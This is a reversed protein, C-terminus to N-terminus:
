GFFYKRFSPSCFEAFAQPLGDEFNFYRGGAEGIGVKFGFNVKNSFRVTIGKGAKERFRELFFDELEEKQKEPLIIDIVGHNGQSRVFEQVLKEVIERLFAPDDLVKRVTEQTVPRVISRELKEEILLMFNRAAAKMDIDMKKKIERADELSKSRLDEAEQRAEQVIQRAQMRAAEIIGKAEERAPSLVKEKLEETIDGLTRTIVTM